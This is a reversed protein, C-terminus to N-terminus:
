NQDKMQEVAALANERLTKAEARVRQLQKLVIEIREDLSKSSPIQLAAYSNMVAVQEVLYDMFGALAFEHQVTNTSVVSGQWPYGKWDGKGHCFYTSLHRYWNDGGDLLAVKDIEDLKRAKKLPGEGFEKRLDSIQTLLQEYGKESKLTRAFTGLYDRDSFEMVDRAHEPEVFLNHVVHKVQGACELVPRMQVALSHLNDGDNASLVAAMHVNAKHLLLACQLRFPGFPLDKIVARESVDDGVVVGLKREIQGTDRVQMGLLTAIGARYRTVENVLTDEVEQRPDDTM